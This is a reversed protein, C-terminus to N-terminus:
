MKIYHGCETICYKPAEHTHKHESIKVIENDVNIHIYAKCSKSVFSSCLYRTGGNKLSGNKSYTYRNLIILKSGKITKM